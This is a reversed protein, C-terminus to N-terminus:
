SVSPLDAITARVKEMAIDIASAEEMTVMDEPTSPRTAEARLLVVVIDWDDAKDNVASLRHQMTMDGFLAQFKDKPWFSEKHVGDFSIAFHPEDAPKCSFGAAVAAVGLCCYGQATALYEKTKPPKYVKLITALTELNRNRAGEIFPGYMKRM